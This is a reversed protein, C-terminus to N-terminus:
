EAMYSDLFAPSYPNGILASHLADLIPKGNKRATSVYSRVACFVKSGDDSRFGGSVKQQLKTMRIDREAQNNDFPVKFDYMFALEKDRHDRLRDLLNKAKSQKAKGRKKKPQETTKEPTPNSLLGKDVIQDYHNEFSAIQERALSEDGLEKAVEVTQKIDVLLEIMETAWTQQYQEVLFTLERLVHANCLAHKAKAYKLYAKWYDHVCWKTRNPLIGIEDMADSGRKVHIQYYSARKTSSSHLWNLKGAVRAGTEDFHVAEETETLYSKVKKNTPDVQKAVEAVAKVVVGQTVPQEYLDELIETTRKLPIFHYNHFYTAQARIRPGYQTKQSVNAPFEAKNVTGCSPCTKIEVQHETVELKKRPVDFVQRTDYKDIGVNELSAHCHSCQAVSHIATFDPNAVPELRHGKHGLQGGSNRDSKPRLGHQPPKKLGDSTPPKGSNHSDKKLEGEIKQVKEELVKANDQLAHILTVLTEVLDVVAGEGQRYAARIEEQTPLKIEAM